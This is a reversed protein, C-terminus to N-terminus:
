PGTFDLRTKTQTTKWDYFIIFTLERAMKILGTWKILGRQDFRPLFKILCRVVLKKFILVPKTSRIISLKRKCVPAECLKLRMM